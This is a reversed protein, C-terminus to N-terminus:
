RRAETMASGAYTRLDVGQPYPTLNQSAPQWSIRHELWVEVTPAFANPSDLSLTTIDITDPHATTEYTLQSGCSRCFRRAVGQSSRYVHPSGSLMQFRSREVTLWAVTPAASARRCTTCHCISSFLPTGSIRFRIASCLCGGQHIQM